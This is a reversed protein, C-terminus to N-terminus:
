THLTFVQPTNQGNSTSYHFSHHLLLDNQAKREAKTQIDKAAAKIQKYTIEAFHSTLM